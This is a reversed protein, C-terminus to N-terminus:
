SWHTEDVLGDDYHLGTMPSAARHAKTAFFENGKAARVAAVTAFATTDLADTLFADVRQRIKTKTAGKTRLVTRGAPAAFAGARAALVQEDGDRDAGHDDIGVRLLLQAIQGLVPLFHEDGATSLASPPVRAEL